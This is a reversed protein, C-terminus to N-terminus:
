EKHMKSIHMKLGNKSKTEFDCHPCVYVKVTEEQKKERLAEKIDKSSVTPQQNVTDARNQYYELDQEYAHVKNNLDKIRRQYDKIKESKNVIMDEVESDLAHVDPGTDVSSIRTVSPVKWRLYSVAKEKDKAVIGASLEKGNSMEYKVRFVKM